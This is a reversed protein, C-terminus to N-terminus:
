LEGNHLRVIRKAIDESLFCGIQIENAEFFNCFAPTKDVNMICWGGVLDDPKAYWMVKNLDYIEAM